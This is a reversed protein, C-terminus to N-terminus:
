YCVPAKHLGLHHHVLNVLRLREQESKIRSKSFAEIQNRLNKPLSNYESKTLHKM